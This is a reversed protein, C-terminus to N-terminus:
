LKKNSFEDFAHLFRKELHPGLPLSKYQKGEHTGMLLQPCVTVDDSTINQFSITFSSISVKIELLIQFNTSRGGSQLAISQLHNRM